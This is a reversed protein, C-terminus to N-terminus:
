PSSTFIIGSNYSFEGGLYTSQSADKHWYKLYMSSTMAAYVHPWGFLQHSLRGPDLQECGIINNTLTNNFSQDNFIACESINKSFFM